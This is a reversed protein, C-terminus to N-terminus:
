EGACIVRGDADVCYRRQKKHVEAHHDVCLLMLNGWGLTIEPNSINEPTLWTKHHVVTGPRYVGLGLCM